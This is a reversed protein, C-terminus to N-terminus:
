AARYKLAQTTEPVNNLPLNAPCGNLEHIRRLKKKVSKAVQKESRDSEM